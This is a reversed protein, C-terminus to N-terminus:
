AGDEARAMVATVRKKLKASARFTVVRRATIPAEEGTRPNRGLRESKGRVSFSGFGSIGVPEGAALRECIAEILRTWWSPRTASACDPRRACLRRWIPSQDGDGHRM